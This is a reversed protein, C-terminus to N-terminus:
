DEFWKSEEKNISDEFEKVKQVYEIPNGDKGTLEVPQKAKGHRRDLFSDIAKLNGNRALNMYQRFIDGEIDVDEIAVLPKKLRKKKKSNEPDSNWVEIADNIQKIKENQQDVYEGALKQIAMEVLTDFSRKGVPRGKKNAGPILNAMRKRKGAEVDKINQKVEDLKKSINRSVKSNNKEKM